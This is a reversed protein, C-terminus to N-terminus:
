KELKQKVARIFLFGPKTTLKKYAEPHRQKCEESPQGENVAEIAFGASLLATFLASLPRRYFRVTVLRGVTNWEEEVLETAHYSGNNHANYDTIPHHTSFVFHGGSKLLRFFDHFLKDLDLIYHITLSSVILDFSQDHFPLPTKSLDWNHVEAKGALREKALAVMAPSVDLATVKGGRQILLDAYIGPGCGADLIALGNVNPLLALTSPREYGANWANSEIANAYDRGFDEYSKLAVPSNNTDEKIAM